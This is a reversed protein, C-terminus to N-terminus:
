GCRPDVYRGLRGRIGDRVGAAIMKLNELRRQDFVLILLFLVLQGTLLKIMFIVDVTPYKKM